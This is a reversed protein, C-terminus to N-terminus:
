WARDFEITLVSESGSLKGRSPGVVDDNQSTESGSAFGRARTPASSGRGSSSTSMTTIPLPIVPTLKKSLITCSIAFFGAADVFPIFITM